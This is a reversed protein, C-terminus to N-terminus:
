LMKKEWGFRSQAVKMCDALTAKSRLFAFKGENMHDRYKKADFADSLIFRIKSSAMKKLIETLGAEVGTSNGYNEVLKDFKNDNMLGQLTLCWILNKAKPAYGYKEAGASRIERIVSQLRFQVKYLLVLKRPDIDLYQERFTDRYWVEGEFVDKM